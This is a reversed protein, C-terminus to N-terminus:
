RISEPSEGLSPVHEIFSAAGNWWDQRIPRAPPSHAVAGAYGRPLDLWSVVYERQPQAGVVTFSDLPHALGRGEAKIYAEKATWVDFFPAKRKGASARVWEKEVPHFAGAAIQEWDQIPRIQEIDVGIQAVGGVAVVALEGSHSLNFSLPFGPGANRLFPKGDDGCGFELLGPAVGTYRGLIQRLCLHAHVFRRRHEAFVFADARRCEAESLIDYGRPDGACICSILWVDVSGPEM